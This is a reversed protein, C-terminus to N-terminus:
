FYRQGRRASILETNMGVWHLTGNYRGHEIKVCRDMIVNLGAEEAIRAAELNVVRLQLWLTKAGIQVAQRAIEVCEEPQRFVDVMDVPDPISLLDPYAREGLIETAKPNVPIVRYGEYNLYSGVFYSPRETKPSLGVIAITRTTSLIKRITGPDQYRLRQEETLITNMSVDVALSSGSGM